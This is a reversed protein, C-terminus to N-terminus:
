PIALLSSRLPRKVKGCCTKTQLIRPLLFYDTIADTVMRNIEEPMTIDGSRIGAEVHAVKVLMKKAVVSCALTSTVDGVVLVLHSPYAALDKEFRLMINATQEAQTGSGSELNIDPQPIGLQEFFSQSMNADYHQGTHM